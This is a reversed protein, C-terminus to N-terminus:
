DGAHRKKEKIRGWEGRLRLASSNKIQSKQNEIKEPADALWCDLILFRFDM